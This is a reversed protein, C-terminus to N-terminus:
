KVYKSIITSYRDDFSVSTIEKFAINVPEQEWEGIADFYSLLLSIKNVENIKGVYFDKGEIDECEVIINKGLTMLEKFVTEWSDLNSISQKGIENLIGEEEFIFEFFRECEDSCTDTIDKIRIIKYGDVQFDDLYQVLLLKEGMILPYCHISNRDIKCRKIHVQNHSEIGKLLMEKVELKKM